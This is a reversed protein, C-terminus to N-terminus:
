WNVYIDIVGVACGSDYVKAPGLSTILITGKSMYATNAAVCIYGEGDRITGDDAVHRGPIRLSAGPLVKQSYYTEKHGNFYIAGKNKTLRGASYTYLESYKLELTGNNLAENVEAFTMEDYTKKRITLGGLKTRDEILDLNEVTNDKKNERVSMVSALSDKLDEKEVNSLYSSVSIIAVMSIIFVTIVKENILRFIKM